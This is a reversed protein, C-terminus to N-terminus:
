NRRLLPTVTGLCSLFPWLFSLALRDRRRLHRRCLDVLALGLRVEDGRGSRLGRLVGALGTRLFRPAIQDRSQHRPGDLDDPFQEILKEAYILASKAMRPTHSASGGHIRWASLARPIFVNYYGALFLRVFLDDDEYGSLRPDFGQVADFAGHDILAASPLVYMNAGLCAALTRKPHETPMTALM